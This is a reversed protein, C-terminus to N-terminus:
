NKPSRPSRMVPRRDGVVVVLEVADADLAGTMVAVVDSMSTTKPSVIATRRGLRHIDIRDAIQAVEPMSHSILVVSLGQERVRRILDLVQNTERVGLAATPEDLVVM